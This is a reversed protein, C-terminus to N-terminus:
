MRNGNRRATKISSALIALLEDCEREVGAVAETSCLNMENAFKLWARTERLEKICIGLKHIFDRRSEAGQVEGYNAFPSTGSRILQVSVHKGLATAPLRDTLRSVASGFRILRDELDYRPAPMHRVNQSPPALDVYGFHRPHTGDYALIPPTLILRAGTESRSHGISLSGLEIIM